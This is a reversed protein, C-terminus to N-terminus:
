GQGLRTVLSRYVNGSVNITYTIHVKVDVKYLEYCIIHVDVRQIHASQIHLIRTIFKELKFTNMKMDSLGYIIYSGCKLTSTNQPTHAIFRAYLINLNALSCRFSTLDITRHHIQYSCLGEPYNDVRQYKWLTYPFGTQWFIAFWTINLTQRSKQKNWMKFISKTWYNINEKKIEWFM